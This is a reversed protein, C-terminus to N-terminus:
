DHENVFFLERSRAGYINPTNIMKDVVSKLKEFTPPKSIFFSVGLDFLRDMAGPTILGSIVVVPIDKTTPNQKILKICDYGDIGHLMLDLFVLDPLPSKELESLAESCNYFCKLISQPSVAHLADKFFQRDDEDDDILLITSIHYKTVGRDYLPLAM